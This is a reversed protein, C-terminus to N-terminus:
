ESPFRQNSVYQFSGDPLPRIVVKHLFATGLNQEPWVANVTLEITNDELNRYSIVEPYPFESGGAINYIGRPTYQYTQSSADYVAKEHLTERSIHFRTRIVKEFEEAPIRFQQGEYEQFYPVNASYEMKYLLEYLDYFNVDGYDDETWDTIFLNTSGYGIPQIYTRNLERCTEDLPDIRVATHAYPGSFGAMYYKEFFLYGNESRVWTHAEYSDTGINVLKWRGHQEKWWLSDAVVNVRGDETEMQFQVFGGNNLAMLFMVNGQRAEEVKECFAELERPNEMNIQSDQDIVTYGKEGLRAVMARVVELDGVTGDALANEYIEQCLEELIGAMEDTEQYSEVPKSTEFGDHLTMDIKDIKDIKDVKDMEVIENRGVCETLVVMCTILSLFVSYKKM